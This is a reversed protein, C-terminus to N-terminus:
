KRKKKKRKNKSRDKFKTPNLMEEYFSPSNEMHLRTMHMYNFELIARGKGKSSM